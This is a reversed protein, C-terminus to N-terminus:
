FNGDRLFIRIKDFRTNIMNVFIRFPTRQISNIYLIQFEDLEDRGSCSYKSSVAM